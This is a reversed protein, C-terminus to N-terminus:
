DLEDLAIWKPMENKVYHDSGWVGITHRGDAEIGCTIIKPGMILCDRTEKGHSELIKFASSNPGPSIIVLGGENKRDASDLAALIRGDYNICTGSINKNYPSPFSLFSLNDLDGIAMGSQKVGTKGKGHSKETVILIKGDRYTKIQSITGGFGTVISVQSSGTDWIRLDDEHFASFIRGAYDSALAAVPRDPGRMVQISGETIDWVRISGDQHGTIVRDTSLAESVLAPSDTKPLRFKENKEFNVIACEGKQDITFIQRGLLSLEKSKEMQTSFIRNDLFTLIFVVGEEGWGAIQDQAYFRIKKPKLDDADITGILHPANSIDQNWEIRFKREQHCFSEYERKEMEHTEFAMPEDQIALKGTSTQLSHTEKKFNGMRILEGWSEIRIQSFLEQIEEKALRCHISNDLDYLIAKGERYIHTDELVPEELFSLHTKVSELAIEREELNYRRTSITARFNVEVDLKERFYFLDIIRQFYYRDRCGDLIILKKDENEALFRFFFEEPDDEEETLPYDHYYIPDIHNQLWRIGLIRNFIKQDKKRDRMLYLIENKHINGFGNMLSQCFYTKGTGSDGNVAIIAQGKERILYHITESLEYLGKQSPKLGLINVAGVNYLYLSHIFEPLEIKKLSNVSEEFVNKNKIQLLKLLSIIIDASVGGFKDKQSKGIEGLTWALYTQLEPSLHGTYKILSPLASLSELGIKGLAVITEEQQETLRIFGATEDFTELVPILCDVAKKVELNGLTYILNERIKCVNLPFRGLANLLTGTARPDQLISLIVSANYPVGSDMGINGDLLLRLCPRLLAPSTQTVIGMPPLITETVLPLIEERKETDKAKELLTNIKQTIRQEEAIMAPLTEFFEPCNKRLHNGIRSLFQSEEENESLREILGRMEEVRKKYEKQEGKAWTDWRPVPWESNLRFAEYAIIWGLTECITLFVSKSNRKNEAPLNTNKKHEKQLNQFIKQTMNGYCSGMFPLFVDQIFAEREPQDLEWLFFLIENSICDRISSPNNQWQGTGDIYSVGLPDFEELLTKGSQILDEPSFSEVGKKTM